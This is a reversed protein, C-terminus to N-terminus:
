DGGVGVCVTRSPPSRVSNSEFFLIPLSFFLLKGTSFDPIVKILYHLNVEGIMGTPIICGKIYTIYTM